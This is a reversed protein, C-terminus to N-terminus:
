KKKKRRRAIHKKRMSRSGTRAETAQEIKGFIGGLVKKKKKKTPKVVKPKKYGIGKPM